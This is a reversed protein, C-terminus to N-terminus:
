KWKTRLETGIPYKEATFDPMYYKGFSKNNSVSDIDFFIMDDETTMSLRKNMGNNSGKDLTIEWWFHEEDNPDTIKKLGQIKATVPEKLFHKRWKEPIKNIDFESKISDKSRKSLYMGSTEPEFGINVYDAFRIFDNEKNTSWGFDFSESLLYQNTEWNLVRFETKIKLSDIGYDIQTKTPKLEMDEPYEILEIKDPMLTLNISDMKYTGFAKKREGGGFCSFLYHENIFRGDSLLDLRLGNNFGRYSYRLTDINQSVNKESNSNRKDNSCSYILFIILIKIYKM